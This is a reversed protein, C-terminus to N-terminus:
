IKSHRFCYRKSNAVIVGYIDYTARLVEYKLETSVSPPRYLSFCTTIM